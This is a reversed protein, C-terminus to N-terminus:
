NLPVPIMKVEVLAAKETESPVLPLAAAAFMRPTAM